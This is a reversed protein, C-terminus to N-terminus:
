PDSNNLSLLNFGFWLLIFRICSHILSIKNKTLFHMTTDYNHFSEKLVKFPSKGKNIATVTNNM